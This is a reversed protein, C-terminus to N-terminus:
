APQGAAAMRRVARSCLSPQRWRRRSSPSTPTPLSRRSRMGSKIKEADSLVHAAGGDPSTGSEKFAWAITVGPGAVDDQFSFNAGFADVWYIPDTPVSPDSFVRFEAM